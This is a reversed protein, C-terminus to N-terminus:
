RCGKWWFGVHGELHVQEKQKEKVNGLKKLSENITGDKETENVLEDDQDVDGASGDEDIATNTTRYSRDGM